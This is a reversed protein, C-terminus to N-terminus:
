GAPPSAPTDALVKAIPPARHRCGIPGDPPGRGTGHDTNSRDGRHRGVFVGVVEHTHVTLGTPRGAHDPQTRCSMSALRGCSAAVNWLVDHIERGIRQLLLSDAPGAAPPRLVGAALELTEGLLFATRGRPDTEWDHRATLKGSTARQRCRARGM